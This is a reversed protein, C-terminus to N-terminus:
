PKQPKDVNIPNEDTDDPIVSKADIEGIGLGPKANEPIIQSEQVLPKTKTVTKSWKKLWNAGESKPNDMKTVENEKKDHQRQAYLINALNNVSSRKNVSNDEQNALPQTNTQPGLETLFQFDARDGLRFGWGFRSDTGKKLTPINSYIVSLISPLEDPVIFAQGACSFLVCVTLVLLSNMKKLRVEFM